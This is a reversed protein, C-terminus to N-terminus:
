HREIQQLRFLLTGWTLKSRIMILTHNGDDSFWTWVTGKGKLFGSIAEARVRVADFNGAPVKVKDRAEVHAQVENTRGGDNVLFAYTSGVQLPLSALYYFGSVMDTVCGPIDSEVHKEEGTKLNRETLVSKRRPYDFNLEVDRARSGEEIHKQVRHSCFRHTDFAAEALDNVKYLSSVFGSSVASATVHQEAGDDRLSVRTTGANFVHWEVGFVYTQGDPFRYGPPPPVIEVVPGASVTPISPEAGGKPSVQAGALFVTVGMFVAGWLRVSLKEM